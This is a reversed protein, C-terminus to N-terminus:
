EPMGFERRIEEYPIGEGRMLSARSREIAAATEPTVEEEEVPASALARSLPEVLVELLDRVAKLKDDPLIDLLAHAQEREHSLDTAM